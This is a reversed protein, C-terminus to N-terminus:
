YTWPLATSLTSLAALSLSPRDQRAEVRLMSLSITRVLELSEVLSIPAQRQAQQVEM